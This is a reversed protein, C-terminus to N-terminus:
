SIISNPINKNLRVLHTYFISIIYAQVLSILIEEILRPTWLIAFMRGNYAPLFIKLIYTNITTVILGSITVMTLIELFKMHTNKAKRKILSDIGVFSLGLISAAELGITMFNVFGALQTKFKEPKAYKALSAMAKSSLNLENAEFKKNVDELSAVNSTNAIFGNSLNNVNSSIHNFAGLIGILIFFGVVVIKFKKPDIRVLLMWLLGKIVGGLTATVTIWPIFPGDPHLFFGLLDTLGGAVGGWVPGFLMAPITSFVGAIGIRMGSAGFIVINLSFFAKTVAACAIFLATVTIMRVHEKTFNKM